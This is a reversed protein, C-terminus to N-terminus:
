VQHLMKNQVFTMCNVKEPFVVTVNDGRRAARLPSKITITPPESQVRQEAKTRNDLIM